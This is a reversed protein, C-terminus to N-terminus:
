VLAAKGYGISQTGGHSSSRFESLPRSDKRQLSALGRIWSLRMKRAAEVGQDEALTYDAQFTTLGEAWNGMTYDIAVANGWWSHLVEHALTRGLMYPHSLIDRSVYTLGAFGLGVPIQASVVSFGTYPYDGIETKYRDLFGAVAALYRSSLETDATEFYTRLELTGHEIKQVEYPGIFIGLDEARGTYKFTASYTDKGFRESVLSGTAAVRQQGTVTVTINFQRLDTADTPFWGASVLYSAAPTAAALSLGQSPEPVTGELLLRVRRGGHLSDDIVSDRIAKLSEIKEGDIFASKLTIWDEDPSRM